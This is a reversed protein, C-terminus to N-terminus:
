ERTGQFSGAPLAMAAGDVTMTGQWSGALVDVLGDRDDDSTQARGGIAIQARVLFADGVVEDVARDVVAACADQYDAPSGVEVLDEIRAGIGACDIEDALWESVSGAGPAVRPLAVENLAYELIAGQEIAFAHRDIRLAGSEVAVAVRAPPPLAVGEVSAVQGDISLAIAVVEHDAVLEGERVTLRSSVELGSALEATDSGLQILEAVLEPSHTLIIRNVIADLGLAERAASLAAAEFTGLRDEVQDLIWTAPDDPDDTMALFGDLLPAPGALYGDPLALSSELAYSGEVVPQPEDDGGGGGGGHGGPYRGESACGSMVVVALM